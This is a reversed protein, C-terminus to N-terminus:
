GLKLCMTYLALPRRRLEDGEDPLGGRPARARLPLRAGHRPYLYIYICIYVYIYIYMHIYMYIYIYTCIYTYM